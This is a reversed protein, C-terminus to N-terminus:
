SESIECQTVNKSTICNFNDDYGSEPKQADRLLLLAVILGSAVLAIFM